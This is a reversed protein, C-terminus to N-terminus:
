CLSIIINSEIKVVKSNLMMKYPLQPLILFQCSGLVLGGNQLKLKGLDTFRETPIAWM